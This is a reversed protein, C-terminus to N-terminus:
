RGPRFALECEGVVLLIGRAGSGVGLACVERVLLGTDRFADIPPFSMLRTTLAELMPLFTVFPLGSAGSPVLSLLLRSTM